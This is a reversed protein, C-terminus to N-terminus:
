EITLHALQKADDLIQGAGLVVATLPVGSLTVRLQTEAHLRESLNRLLAGGGALLIGKDLIDSSLEPPCQDLVLRVADVIQNVPEALAERVEEHLGFM